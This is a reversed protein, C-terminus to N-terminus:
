VAAGVRLRAVWPDEAGYPALGRGEVLDRVALGKAGLEATVLDPSLYRRFHEGFLHQEHEDQNTRFEFWCEGGHRAVVAALDWLNQRASDDIAHVLFRAYMVWGLSWDLDAILDGVAQPDGLDVQHFSAEWDEHDALEEARRLAASSYDVAAVRHGQRALFRTDRATGTGIDLVPPQGDLREAVWRVFPSEGAPVREAGASAYFDQWYDQLM